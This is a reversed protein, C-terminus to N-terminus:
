PIPDTVRRKRKEHKKEKEKERNRERRRELISPTEHIVAFRYQMQTLAHNINVHASAICIQPLNLPALYLIDTAYM